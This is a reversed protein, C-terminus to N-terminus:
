LVVFISRSWPDLEHVAAVCFDVEPDKVCRRGYHEVCVKTCRLRYCFTRDRRLNRGPAGLESAQELNADAWRTAIPM